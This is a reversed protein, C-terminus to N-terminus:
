ATDLQPVLVMSKQPAREGSLRQHCAVDKATSALQGHAVEVGHPKAAHGTALHPRRSAAGAGDGPIAAAAQLAAAEEPLCNRPKLKLFPRRSFHRAEEATLGPLLRAGADWLFFPL